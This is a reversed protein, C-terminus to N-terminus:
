GHGTEWLSTEQRQRGEIWASTVDAQAAGGNEGYGLEPLQALCAAGPPGCALADDDDKKKSM